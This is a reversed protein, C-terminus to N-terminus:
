KKSFKNLLNKFKEESEKLVDEAIKQDTINKLILAAGNKGDEFTIPVINVKFFYVDKDRKLDVECTFNKGNLAENIGILIESNEKLSIEVVDKVSKGITDNKDINFFKSFSDNIMTVKLESDCTMILDSVLNLMDFIPVRKSPFFVKAPGFSIMEVHGCIRMIDLYKAVSNRNIKIKRSIDTVTMGKPNEKLVKLILSIEQQYFDMLVLDAFHYKHMEKKNLKLAICIVFHKYIM